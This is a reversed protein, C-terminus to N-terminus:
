TNLRIMLAQTPKSQYFLGFIEEKMVDMDDTPNLIITPLMKHHEQQSFAENAPNIEVIKAGKEEADRVLGRLREYHNLHIISTYDPNNKVTPYNLKVFDTAHQVFEDEKQEPVFIYDPSICIQGANLLKGMMIKDVSKKLKANPGILVPSKGGLELTLPVLNKSATESVKRAVNTAGTFLLHEFKLSAFDASTKPGGNVVVVEKETFFKEVLEEVRDGAECDIAVREIISRHSEYWIDNIDVTNNYFNYFAM